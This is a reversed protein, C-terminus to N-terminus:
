ATFFRAFTEGLNSEARLAQGDVVAGFRLWESAPRDNEAIWFRDGDPVLRSAHGYAGILMLNGERIVIRFNSRWPNFSRYHGVCAQWASPADPAPEAATGPRQFTEGGWHLKIPSPTVGPSLIDDSAREVELPFPEWAPDDAVLVRAGRGVPRQLQVDHSGGLLRLGTGGVPQIDITRSQSTWAGALDLFETLDFPDDLSLAPTDGEGAATAILDLAATALRSTDAEGNALVVAAMGNTVDITMQSVYGVMGGSHGFREPGVETRYTELAYGYDPVPVTRGAHPNRMDALQGTTLVPSDDGSAVTLLMGAYTALDRATMALCGDGTDTELWTAPVVGHRRIRPRDDYQSAYGQALLPRMSATIAGHAGSMGLPTFIRERVIEAYPKGLVAELVLGLTKYGVNSYVFHEGPAAYTAAERLLWVELRADPVPDDGGPLGSTHTLLDHITVPRHQTQISFWPLYTTVPAQLDLLGEAAMQMLIIATFSKGISGIEFVTSEDVPDDPRVTRTGYFRTLQNGARDSIAIAIGPAVAAELVRHAERDLQAFRALMEPTMSAPRTDTM